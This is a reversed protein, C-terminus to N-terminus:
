GSRDREAPRPPADREERGDRSGPPEDALLRAVTAPDSYRRHIRRIRRLQALVVGVLLAAFACFLAFRILAEM